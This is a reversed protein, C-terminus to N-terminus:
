PLELSVGVVTTPISEESGPAILTAERSGITGMTPLTVPLGAEQKRFYDYFCLPELCSVPLVTPIKETTFASKITTWAASLLSTNAMPRSPMIVPLAALADIALSDAPNASVLINTAVGSKDAVLRVQTDPNKRDSDAMLVARVGMLDAVGIATEYERVHAIGMLACWKGPICFMELKIINAAYYNMSEIREPSNIDYESSNIEIGVIRIGAARAAELLQRMGFHTAREMIDVDDPLERAHRLMAWFAENLRWLKNISEDLKGTIFYENLLHQKRYDLGELFLVKFGAAALVRMNEILFKRAAIDSHAEGVVFSGELLDRLGTIPSCDPKVIFKHQAHFIKFLTSDSSLTYGYGGVAVDPWKSIPSTILNALM